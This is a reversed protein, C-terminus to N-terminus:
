NYEIVERKPVWKEACNGYKLHRIVNATCM